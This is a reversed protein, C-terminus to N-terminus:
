QSTRELAATAEQMSDRYEAELKALIERGQETTEVGFESKLRERITAVQAQATESEVEARAKRAKAQDIQTRKERLEQDVDPM